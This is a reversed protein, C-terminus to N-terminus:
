PSREGPHLLAALARGPPADDGGHPDRLRHGRRWPGRGAPGEEVAVRGQVQRTAKRPLFVTEVPLLGLGPVDAGLPRRSGRRTACARGLMQYGGCIGLVASGAASWAWSGSPSARPRLWELDAITTKTGPLIVIEPWGLDSAEEM